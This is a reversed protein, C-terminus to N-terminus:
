LTNSKNKPLLVAHWLINNKCSKWLKDTHSGCTPIMLQKMYKQLMLKVLINSTFQDVLKILEATVEKTTHICSLKKIM